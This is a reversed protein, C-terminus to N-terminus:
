RMARLREFIDVICSNEDFLSKKTSMIAIPCLIAYIFIAQTPSCSLACGSMNDCRSPFSREQIFNEHAMSCFQTFAVTMSISNASTGPM